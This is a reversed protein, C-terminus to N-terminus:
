VECGRLFKTKGCARRKEKKMVGGLEEKILAPFPRIAVWRGREKEVRNVCALMNVM